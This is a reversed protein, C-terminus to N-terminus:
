ATVEHQNNYSCADNRVAYIIFCCFFSM